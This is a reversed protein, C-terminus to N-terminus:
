RGERNPPNPDIVNHETRVVPPKPLMVVRPPPNVVMNSAPKRKVLVAQLDGEGEFDVALMGDGPIKWTHPVDSLALTDSTTIRYDLALAAGDTLAVNDSPSAWRVFGVAAVDTLAATDSAIVGLTLSAFVQDAVSVPDTNFSTEVLLQDLPAAITDGVVTDFLAM